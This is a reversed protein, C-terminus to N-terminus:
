PLSEIMFLISKKICKDDADPKSEPQSVHKEQKVSAEEKKEM